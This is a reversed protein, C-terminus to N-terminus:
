QDDSADSSPKEFTKSSDSNADIPPAIRITRMQSRQSKNKQYEAIISSISGPPAAAPQMANRITESDDKKIDEKKDREEETEEKYTGAALSKYKKWIREAEADQAAGSTKEGASEDGRKKEEPEELHRPTAYYGMVPKNEAKGAPVSRAYYSGAKM